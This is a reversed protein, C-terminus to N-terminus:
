SEENRRPPGKVENAKIETIRHTVGEKEYQRTKKQGRVTVQDGKKIYDLVYKATHGFCLIDSWETEKVKEGQKNTYTETTALPFKAGEGGIEKPDAGVNGALIVINM